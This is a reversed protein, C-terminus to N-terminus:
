GAGAGELRARSRALNRRAPQDFRGRGWDSLYLQDRDAFSRLVAARGARFADDPVHAYEARVQQEYADFRQEDAGLISLDMDLFRAADARAAADAADPLMHHKTAAILAAARALTAPSLLASADARLLKASREENDGWTPDYVADHFLIAFLVAQPDHLKDRVEAHLALLARIHSWNHYARGPEAHRRRLEALLAPPVSALDPALALDDGEDIM